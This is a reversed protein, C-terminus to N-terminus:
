GNFLEQLDLATLAPLHEVEMDEVLGNLLADFQAVAASYWLGYQNKAYSANVDLPLRLLVHYGFSSEVVDSIEGEQMAYAAEEFEAVMAGHTFVYGEPYIMAGPDDNQETLADMAANKDEAALLAERAREAAALQETLKAEDLKNGEDDTNSFLVHRVQVYDNERAYALVQAEPLATGGEGYLATFCDDALYSCSNFYDLLEEDVCISELYEEFKMDTAAEIYNVYSKYEEELAAKSEESLEVGNKECVADLARYQRISNDANSLIFDAYSEGSEGDMPANFDEIPGLNEELTSVTYQMWYYYENWTVDKGDAKAVPASLEMTRRIAAFDRGATEGTEETGAPTEPAETPEPAPEEKETGCAALSGMLLLAALLLALTKKM